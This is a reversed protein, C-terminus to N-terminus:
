KVGQSSPIKKKAGKSATKLQESMESLEKEIDTAPAKFDKLERLLSVDKEIKVHKIDTALSSLMDEDSGTATGAAFASIESHNDELKVTLLSGESSWKGTVSSIDSPNDDASNKSGGTGTTPTSPNLGGSGPASDDSPLVSVRPAPELMGSDDGLDIDDLNINDMDELTGDVAEVGDLGNLEESGNDANAKLIAEADTATEDPLAPMELDPMSFGADADPFASTNQPEAGPEDLGDLLGTGLEEDSLSLFPDSEDGNEAPLAGGAGSRNSGSEAPVAAASELASGRRVKETITRELLKNIEEPKKAPKKRETLIKGFSTVSSALLSLHYRIGNTKEAPKAPVNKVDKKKGADKKPAIKKDSLSISDPRKLTSQHRIRKLTLKSLANKIEAVTISGILVLLLFGVAMILPLMYILPIDVFILVSGTGVIVAFLVLRRTTEKM